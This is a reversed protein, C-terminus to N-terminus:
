KKEESLYKEAEIAAIAGDATATVVQRLTKHRVDGAAFVGPISTRMREDTKVFGGIKELNEYIETVPKMGAFIFLGLNEGERAEIVKQEGTIVNKTEIRTLLDGGGIETIVTDLMFSIKENGKAQDVITDSARFADRRHILTVHRAYKTMYISEELASYGGGVVYVDLGTFFPGDCVACYSVGRGTYEEEGPIGLKMPVTGTAIILTSGRYTKGLVEVKKEAGDLYVKEAAGSVKEAGFSEAQSALRMSFEAGSEGPVGGPYNEIESTQFINGGFVGREIILTALGARGAYLAASLGAPGGGLILVDYLKEEEGMEFVNYM